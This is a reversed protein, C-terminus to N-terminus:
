QVDRKIQLRRAQLAELKEPREEFLYEFLAEIVEDTDFAERMRRRRENAVQSRPSYNRMIQRARQRQAQTPTRAWAVNGRNDIGDVALGDDLLLKHVEALEEAPINVGQNDDNLGM